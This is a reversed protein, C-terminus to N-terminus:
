REEHEHAGKTFHENRNDKPEPTSGYEETWREAIEPHKAWMYRRQAESRFPM